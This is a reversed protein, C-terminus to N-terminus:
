ISTSYLLSVNRFPEEPRSDLYPRERISKNEEIEYNDDDYHM